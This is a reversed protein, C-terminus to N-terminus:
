LKVPVAFKGGERRSFLSLILSDYLKRVKGEDRIAMIIRAAENVLQEMSLEDLKLKEIEAQLHSNIKTLILTM